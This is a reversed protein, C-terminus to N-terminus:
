AQVQTADFAFGFCRSFKREDGAFCAGLGKTDACWYAGLLCPNDCFDNIPTHMAVIWELGMSSVDKNSFNRQILCTAEANLMTLGRCRAEVLIQEIIRSDDEFLHGPLIAIPTLIGSTPKFELNRLVSLAHEGDRTYFVKNKERWTFTRDTDTM